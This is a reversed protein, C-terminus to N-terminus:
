IIGTKNKYTKSDIGFLEYTGQYTNDLGFVINFLTTKGSGSEGTLVHLNNPNTIQFSVDDLVTKDGFTKTLNSFKLM